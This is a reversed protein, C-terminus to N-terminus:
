ADCTKVPRPRPTVVRQLMAWFSTAGDRMAKARLHQAQKVIADVEEFTPYRAEIERTFDTM